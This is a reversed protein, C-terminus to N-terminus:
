FNRGDRSRDVSSNEEETIKTAKKKPKNENDGGPANNGKKNRPSEAENEDDVEELANM